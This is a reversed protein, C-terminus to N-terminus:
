DLFKPNMGVKNAATVFGEKSSFVKNTGKVWDIFTKPQGNEQKRKGVTLAEKRSDFPGAWFYERDKSRYANVWSGLLYFDM